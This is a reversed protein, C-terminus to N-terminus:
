KSYLEMAILGFKKIKEKYGPFSGYIKELEKKSSVFPNINHAKYVRLMANISKFRLARKVRRKFRERGCVFVLTDGRKSHQYRATHARTEVKKKGDRIADFINRNVQRFRLTYQAMHGM